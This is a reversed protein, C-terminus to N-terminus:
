SLVPYFRDWVLECWDLLDFHSFSHAPLGPLKKRSSMFVYYITWDISSSLLQLNHFYCCTASTTSNQYVIFIHKRRRVLDEQPFSRKCFNNLTSHNHQTFFYKHSKLSTKYTGLVITVGVIAKVAKYLNSSARKFWPQHKESKTWYGYSVKQLRQILQINYRENCLPYIKFEFYM